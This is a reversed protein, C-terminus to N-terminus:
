PQLNLDSESADWQRLMNIQLVNFGQMKRYDLYDSWEEITANTFVSWVTDALYFFPKEEKTFSRQNEAMNLSLHIM